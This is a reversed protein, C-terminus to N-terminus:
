VYIVPAKCKFGILPAKTEKDLLRIAIIPFFFNMGHKEKEKQIEKGINDNIQQLITFPETYFLTDVPLKYKFYYIDTPNFQFSGTSLLNKSLLETDNDLLKQVDELVNYMM